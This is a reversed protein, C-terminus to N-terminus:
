AHSVERATRRLLWLFVPAGVLGTVVGLPVEGRAPVLRGVVDCALVFVGGALGAAPVLRRHEVGALPRLAHPVVLGVFSLGGSVSVAAATLVAVWCVVWRRTATVDLGLSAAEEEGSLLVDLSPGWAWAAAIGAGLLPVAFLVHRTGTGSVGGLAFSVVARGLEWQAQAISIVFGGVSLFLSSLIFGTLLLGLRDASQRVFALLVALAALAGALCGLPLVMEPVLGAARGAPVLVGFALMSLQGGLSAGATTGLISPSALPNRFLGQVLVGAVALAAGAVLAAASRAGRLEILASRLGPQAVDASGILLSAATVGIGCAILLVYLRYPPSKAGVQAPVM